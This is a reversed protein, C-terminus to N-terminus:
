QVAIIRNYVDPYSTKLKEMIAGIATGFNEGTIKRGNVEVGAHAVGRSGSHLAAVAWADDCVPSGSSGFDTDTVYTLIKGDGLIVYNNRFGIRMPKGGPHQLVNVGMGLAQDLTKRLVYRRIRLPRRDPATGELDLIAFDLEKDWAVLKGSFTTEVAPDKFYDFM